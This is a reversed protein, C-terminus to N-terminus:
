APPHPKRGQLALNVLVRFGVRKRGLGQPRPGPVSPYASQVFVLVADKESTPRLDFFVLYEAPSKLSEPLEVTVFNRRRAGHHNYYIRRRELGRIIAPLLLSLEYREGNFRRLDHLNSYATDYLEDTCAQTFCHSSFAVRVAVMRASHPHQAPLVLQYHFPHLHSLDYRISGVHHPQWRPFGISWRSAM